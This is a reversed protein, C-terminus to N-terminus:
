YEKHAPARNIYFKAPNNSDVSEFVVKRVGKGVYLGDKNNIEYKVGDLTVYGKSGINIIGLERRELFYDTGIEKLLVLM